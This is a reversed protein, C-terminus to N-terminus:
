ELLRQLPDEKALVAAAADKRALDRISDRHAATLKKLCQRKETIIDRLDIRTRVYIAGLSDAAYKTGQPPSEQRDVAEIQLRRPADINARAVLMNLTDAVRSIIRLREAAGSREDSDEALNRLYNQQVSANHEAHKARLEVDLSAELSRFHPGNSDMTDLEGIDANLLRGQETYLGELVRDLDFLAITQPKARTDSPELASVYENQAKYNYEATRIRAELPHSPDLVLAVPPDKSQWSKLETLWQFYYLLRDKAVPIRADEKNVMILKVGYDLWNNTSVQLLAVREALPVTISPEPTKPPDIDAVEVVAASDKAASVLRTPITGFTRGVVTSGKDNGEDALVKARISLIQAVHGQLAMVKSDLAAQYTQEGRSNLDPVHEFTTNSAVDEVLAPMQGDERFPATLAYPGEVTYALKSNPRVAPEVVQAAAYTWNQEVVLLRRHVDITVKRMDDLAKKIYDNSAVDNRISELFDQAQTQLDEAYSEVDGLHNRQTKLCKGQLGLVELATTLDALQKLLTALKQLLKETRSVKSVVNLKLYLLETLKGAANEMVHIVGGLRKRLTPWDVVAAEDGVGPALPDLPNPVTSAGNASTDPGESVRSQSLEEQVVDVGLPKEVTPRMMVTLSEIKHALLRASIIVGHTSELAIPAGNQSEPQDGLYDAVDQSCKVCENALDRGWNVLNQCASRLRTSMLALRQSNSVIEIVGALEEALLSANQSLQESASGLKQFDGHFDEQRHDSKVSRAHLTNLAASLSVAQALLAKAKSLCTTHHEGLLLLLKLRPVYKDGAQATARVAMTYLSSFGDPLPQGSKESWWDLLKITHLGPKLHMAVNLASTEKPRLTQLAIKIRPLNPRWPAPHSSSLMQAVSATDTACYPDDNSTVLMSTQDHKLETYTYPSPTNMFAEYKSRENDSRGKWITLLFRHYEHVGVWNQLVKIQQRLDNFSAAEHTVMWACSSDPISQTHSIADKEIGALDSFLVADDVLQAAWQAAAADAQLASADQYEKIPWAVQWVDPRAGSGEGANPAVMAATLPTIASSIMDSTESSASIGAARDYKQRKDSGVREESLARKRLTSPAIQPSSTTSEPRRSAKFQASTFMEIPIEELRSYKRSPDPRPDLVLSLIRVPEPSEYLMQNTQGSISWRLQAFEDGALLVTDATSVFFLQGYIEIVFDEGRPWFISTVMGFRDFAKWKVLDGPKLVSQSKASTMHAQSLMYVATKSSIPAGEGPIADSMSRMEVLASHVLPLSPKDRAFTKTCPLSYQGPEGKLSCFGEADARLEVHIAGDKISHQATM